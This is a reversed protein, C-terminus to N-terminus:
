REIHNLLQIERADPFRKRLQMVYSAEADRDGMKREIKVGLLLQEANLNQAMQQVQVFRSFYRKAGSYDGNMFSLEALGFLAGPLNPHLVLARQLYQDAEKLRGAKKSCIGANLWAAEPTTYLPNKIAELLQDIGERDRGRQCLFWGYNNHTESNDKDLKLSYHFDEEAEKDELLAMRVLGRMSYAPAYKSDARIAIEIEQLSIAYQSREYYSAALEVHIKASARAHAAEQDSTSEGKPSVCSALIVAMLIAFLRKMPKGGDLAIHAQNQGAGAGGISRM